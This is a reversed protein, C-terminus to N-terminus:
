FDMNKPDRGRPLNRSYSQTGLNQMKYFNEPLELIKLLEPRQLLYISYKLSVGVFSHLHVGLQFQPLINRKKTGREEHDCTVHM